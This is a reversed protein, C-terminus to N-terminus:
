QDLSLIYMPRKRVRSLDCINRLLISNSSMKQGLVRCYQSQSILSDMVKKLHNGLITALIKFHNGLLSIPRWNAINGKDGKKFLLIVLAEYFSVPLCGNELFIM